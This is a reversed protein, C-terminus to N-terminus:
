KIHKVFWRHNTPRLPGDIKFRGFYIAGRYLSEDFKIGSCAKSVQSWEFADGFEMYIQSDSIQVESTHKAEKKKRKKIPSVLWVSCVGFTSKSIKLINLVYLLSEESSGPILLNKKKPTWVHFIHLELFKYYIRLFKPLSCTCYCTM